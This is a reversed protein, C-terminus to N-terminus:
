RPRLAALWGAWARSASFTWTKDGTPGATAQVRDALEHRKGGVDWAQSMGSPSTITLTTSSSNIAMCGIVMANTSLTTVGPVTGTTAAAGTATKAAVDLPTATDVGSYRGIGGGNLVSSTLTWGYSAPEAAGAIKYYGFVHPNSLAMVSAISSWGAPAGGTAVSGGNLALCAVLVNGAVTGAPTPITVSSTATANVTTSTSERVVGVPPPPPPPADGTTFSWLKDAPLPNGAEDRAGSTVTATYSTSAFLDASPNLTATRALPDYTVSAPLPTTEGTKVLTFTSSTIAAADMAESFTAQVNVGRPVGTAGEAPAVATVTPPTTDVTWTRSAPTPDTNGAADSARVQFTHTGETLGMYTQPSACSGFAAGDLACQFTSGAETASFTFEANTGNVISPPSSNIVTEPPATDPGGPAGIKRPDWSPDITLVPSFANAISEWRVLKHNQNGGGENVHDQSIFFGNPFNPGLAFNTVDIGDEGTVGDVGNGVVIKFEGVHMNDRRNYIHFSSGGQSAALVYGTGNNGYYITLGKVDQKINGGVETTTDIRVGPTTDGPEAGFRWIGGIDEEAIYLRKLEDDAVLGETANSITPLKRVLTGTVSGTAGSLEYQWTKGSDSVFAYYKGSDPSHYLAFGRPTKLESSVPVRGVMTLSRDAPNVKYFDLSHPVDRNTVGVIDVLSGGLPFNYRVDVNNMRGVAYFRLEKGSLDYVNLGGTATKDTGIVISLSPDTPHIWVASDDVADGSSHAPDTEIAASVLMTAGLASPISLVLLAILLGVFFVVRSRAGALSYRQQLRRMIESGRFRVGDM